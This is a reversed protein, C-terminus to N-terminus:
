KRQAKLVQKLEAPVSTDWQFKSILGRGLCMRCHQKPQSEPHGQCQTCVVYPIARQICSWIRDLDAINGNLNVEAFMLDEQRQAKKLATMVEGIHDLLEKVEDTRNWYELCFKPIPRGTPDTLKEAKPKEAEKEASPNGLTERPQSAPQKRGLSDQRVPEPKIEKDKEMEDRVSKVTKDDVACREAIAANSITPWQKIAQYICERKDERSRRIGHRENAKLAFALADEYTGKHVEAVVTKVGNSVQAALRHAGDALLFRRGDDTFLIIQPLARKDQKYLQAYETVVEKRMESRVKPSHRVDIDAVFILKSM